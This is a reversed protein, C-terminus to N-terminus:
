IQSQTIKNFKKIHKINIIKYSIYLIVLIILMIIIYQFYKIIKEWNYGLLYWFYVFLLIHIIEWIFNYIFFKKHWIRSLWSLINVVPSLWTLIFRTTLISKVSNRIFFKEFINYKKSNLIKKFWIKKLIKEWYFYAIIYWITDWILCWIFSTILVLKLDLYWQTALAWWAVIMATAPLPLLFSALLTVLFITPYTYILLYSFFFDIM